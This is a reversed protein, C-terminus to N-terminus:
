AVSLLNYALPKYKEAIIRVRRYFNSCTKIQKELYLKLTYM